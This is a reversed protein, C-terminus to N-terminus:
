RVLFSKTQDDSSRNGSRRVWEVMGHTADTHKSLTRSKWDDVFDKEFIKRDWDAVDTLQNMWALM